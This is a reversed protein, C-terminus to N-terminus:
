KYDDEEDDWESEYKVNEFSNIIRINKDIDEEKIYIEATIFNIDNM